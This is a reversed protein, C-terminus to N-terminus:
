NTNAKTFRTNALGVQKKGTDYVSYFRELFTMGNIFDLGQGSLEGLPAVILYVWDATGGIETNLARPWIQANPTLEFTVGNITFFLSKLNKYAAPTIKLLGTYPDPAGGVANLYKDFADDALLILTTGTDVIGATKPLIPTSSGYRISQDIGWYLSAPQTRTIPTYHISGVFKSSDTGGFTLEGNVVETSNTPEFSVAVKNASIKHQRFLNDTVTPITVNIDPSLTGVTLGVPGLGLIGDFPDFGSADAAVGISQSPITLGNGLSVKDTYETGDFYGSGYTVSVSDPTKKSTSTVKYLQNAGVWTNSSGTDVILTYKKAPSGIGVTATYIVAQNTVPVNHAPVPRADGIIQANARAYLQRARAQDRSLIKGGGTSNFHKAIPLRVLDDRVQVISGASATIAFALPLLLALFSARIGHSM